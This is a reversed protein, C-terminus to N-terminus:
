RCVGAMIRTKREVLADVMEACELWDYTDILYCIYENIAKIRAKDKPSLKRQILHHM